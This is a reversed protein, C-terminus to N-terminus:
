AADWPRSRMAGPFRGKLGYVYWRLYAPLWKVLRFRSEGAVREQWCSPVETVRYGKLFAKITIEMGIEFGRSSEIQIGDIVSKRYMKFSNTIDHTPIGTLAHFSLGAARSLFRKARPGGTQGGGKMYRSGCVVDCGEEIHQMMADVASLDDSTDAMTVLVVGGEVADFGTRIANLAGAGHRNKVLSIHDAGCQRVFADVAPVTSDEDFDYVILVRHPTMVRDEIAALTRTINEGENYAPIVIHLAESMM